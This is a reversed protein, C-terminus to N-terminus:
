NGKKAAQYTHVTRVTTVIFLVLLQLVFLVSRMVAWYIYAVGLVVLILFQIM